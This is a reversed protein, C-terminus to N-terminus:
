NVTLTISKQTINGDRDLITFTWKESGPIPRVVFSTDKDYSNFQASTMLYNYFTTTTAAGDYAYSINYSKLDDETKTVTVGVLITDGVGVTKDASTYNGGTKFVVDPPVHPDKKTRCSFSALLIITTSILLFIKKM